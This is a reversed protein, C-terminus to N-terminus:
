KEAQRGLGIEVAMKSRQSSYDSAVVPYDPPLNWRERYENVTLGHATRLHRKLIKHGKGCELCIIQDKRVSRRVAVAPEQEDEPQPNDLAVLTRHLDRILDPLEERSIKNGAVYSQALKATMGILQLDNDAM